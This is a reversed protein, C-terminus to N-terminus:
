EASVVRDHMRQIWWMAVVVAITVCVMVVFANWTWYGSSLTDTNLIMARVAEDM